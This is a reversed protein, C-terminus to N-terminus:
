HGLLNALKGGLKVIGVRSPRPLRRIEGYWADVTEYFDLTAQIRAKTEPTTSDTEHAMAATERLAKLTPDVERRKREDLLIEFVEWIDKLTEFHDRRDQLKHVVRLIGWTQLNRLSNSIHSRAVGLIDVLEEANRATGGFYLLAFIQAETRNIGWREGMDGWHLVLRELTPDITM